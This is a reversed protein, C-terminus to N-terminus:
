LLWFFRQHLGQPPRPAGPGAEARPLGGAGARPAARGPSAGRPAKMERHPRLMGATHPSCLQSLRAEPGQMGHGTSPGRQPVQPILPPVDWTRSWVSPVARGRVSPVKGGKRQREEQLNMTTTKRGGRFSVHSQSSWVPQFTYLSLFSGAPSFASSPLAPPFKRRNRPTASLAKFDTQAFCHLIEM